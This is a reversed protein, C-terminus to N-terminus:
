LLWEDMKTHCISDSLAASKVWFNQPSDIRTTKTPSANQTLSESQVAMTQWQQLTSQYDSLAMLVTCNVASDASSTWCIWRESFTKTQTKFNWWIRRSFKLLGSISAFYIFNEACLCDILSMSISCINEFKSALFNKLILKIEFHIQTSRLPRLSM